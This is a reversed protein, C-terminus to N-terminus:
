HVLGESIEQCCTPNSSSSLVNLLDSSIGFISNISSMRCWTPHIFGQLYRCISWILQNASNRGDVTDDHETDMKNRLSSM